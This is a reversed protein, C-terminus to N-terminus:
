YDPTMQDMGVLKGVVNWFVQDDSLAQHGDPGLPAPELDKFCSTLGACPVLAVSLLFRHKM